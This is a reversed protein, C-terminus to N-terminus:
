MSLEKSILPNLLRQCNETSVKSLITQHKAKPLLLMQLSVDSPMFLYRDQEQEQQLVFALNVMSAQLATPGLVAHYGQLSCLSSLKSLCVSALVSLLPALYCAKSKKKKRKAKILGKLNSALEPSSFLSSSALFQVPSPSDGLRNLFPRPLKEHM